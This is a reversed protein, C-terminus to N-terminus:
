KPTDTPEFRASSLLILTIKEQIQARHLITVLPYRLSNQQNKYIFPCFIKDESHNSITRHARGEM